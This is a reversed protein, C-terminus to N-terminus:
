FLLIYHYYYYYYDYFLIYFIFYFKIDVVELDPDLDSEPELDEIGAEQDIIEEQLDHDEGKGEELVRGTAINTVVGIMFRM